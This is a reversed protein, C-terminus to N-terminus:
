PDIKTVATRIVVGCSPVNTIRTNWSSPARTYGHLLLRAAAHADSVSGRGCGIHFCCSDIAKHVLRCAGTASLPSTM